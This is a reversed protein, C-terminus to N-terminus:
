CDRGLDRLGRDIPQEGRLLADELGEEVRRDGAVVLPNRYRFPTVHAGDQVRVCGSSERARSAATLTSMLVLVAGM